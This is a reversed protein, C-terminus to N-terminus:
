NSRHPKQPLLPKALKHVSSYLQFLWIESAQRLVSISEFLYM